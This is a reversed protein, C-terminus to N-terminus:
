CIFAAGVVGGRYVETEEEAPQPVVVVDGISETKARKKKPAVRAVELGKWEFANLLAVVGPYVSTLHEPTIRTREMAAMHIRAADMLAACVFSVNKIIREIIKANVINYTTKLKERVFAKTIVAEANEPLEICALKKWDMAIVLSDLHAITDAGFTLNNDRRWNQFSTNKLM